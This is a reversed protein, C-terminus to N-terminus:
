HTWVTENLIRIFPVGLLTKLGLLPRLYPSGREGYRKRIHALMKDQARSLCSLSFCRFPMLIPLAAWGRDYRNNAYSEKKKKLFSM